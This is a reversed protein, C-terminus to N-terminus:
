RNFLRSFLSGQKALLPDPLTPTEDTLLRLPNHYLLLDAVDVNALRVLRDHLSALSRESGPHHRDSAATSYRGQMLLTRATREAAPGYGGALSGANLQLVIGRRVLDEISGPHRQVFSYREPHAMVPQYGAVQLQFLTMELYLPRQDFNCEVLVARSGGLALIEGRQLLDPTDPSLMVENGVLVELSVGADGLAAQVEAVLSQVRAAQGPVPRSPNAHPTAAVRVVGESVFQRAIALTEEMDAAGDDLGPLIHNHLDIV